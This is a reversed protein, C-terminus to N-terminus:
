PLWPKTHCTNGEEQIRGGQLRKMRSTILVGNARNSKIEASISSQPQTADDNCLLSVM